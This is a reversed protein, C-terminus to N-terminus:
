PRRNREENEQDTTLYAQALLIFIIGQLQNVQLLFPVAM